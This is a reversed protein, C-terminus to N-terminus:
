TQLWRHCWPVQSYRSSWADLWLDHLIGPSTHAQTDDETASLASLHVTVGYAMQVEM